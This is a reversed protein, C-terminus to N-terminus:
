EALCAAHVAVERGDIVARAEGEIEGEIAPPLRRLLALLDLDAEAGLMEPRGLIHGRPAAREPEVQGDLEELLGAGLRDSEETKWGRGDGHADVLMRGRAQLLPRDGRHDQREVPQVYEVGVAPSSHSPRIPECMRIPPSMISLNVKAPSAAATTTPVAGARAS